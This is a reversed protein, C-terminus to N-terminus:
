SVSVSSWTPKWIIVCKYAYFDWLWGTDWWSLIGTNLLQLIPHQTAEAKAQFAQFRVSLLYAIKRATGSGNSENELVFTGSAWTQFRWQLAPCTARFGLAWKTHEGLTSSARPESGERQGWCQSCLSVLLLVLTEEKLPFIADQSNQEWCLAERSSVLM